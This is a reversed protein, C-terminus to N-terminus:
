WGEGGGSLNFSFGLAFGPRPVRTQLIPPRSSGQAVEYIRPTLDWDILGLAFAKLSPGILVHVGLTATLIPSADTRDAPPSLVGPAAGPSKPSVVFIDAGGGVGGEMLLRRSKVLQWTAILRTSWVYASLEVARFDDPLEGNGFPVHYEGLLWFTPVSSGNGIVLQAGLGGGFVLGTGKVFPEATAFTALNIQVDRPKRPTSPLPEAQDVADSTSPAVHPPSAHAVPPDVAPPKPPDDHPPDGALVSEAGVHTVYAVEELFLRHSGQRTVNRPQTPRNSKPDSLMVVATDPSRLDIWARVVVDRDSSYRPSAGPDLNDITTMRMQLGLRKVLEQLSGRLVQTDEASGAIVIEFTRQTPAVADSPSSAGSPASSGLMSLLAAVIAAQRRM